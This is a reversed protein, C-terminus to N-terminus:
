DPTAGAPAHRIVVTRGAHLAARLRTVEAELSKAYQETERRMQELRDAHEALSRAYREAERPRNAFDGIRTPLSSSSRGPRPPENARVRHPLPRRDPHERYPRGHLLRTLARRPTDTRNVDSRHVLWNHLLLM